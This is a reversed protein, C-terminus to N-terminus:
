RDDVTLTCGLLIRSDCVKRVSEKLEMDLPGDPRNTKLCCFSASEYGWARAKEFRNLLQRGGAYWCIFELFVCGLAWVDCQPTIEGYPLISEPSRYPRSSPM